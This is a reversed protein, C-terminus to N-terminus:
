DDEDYYDLTSYIRGAKLRRQTVPLWGNSVAERISIGKKACWARQYEETKIDDETVGGFTFPGVQTGNFVRDIRDEVDREVAKRSAM